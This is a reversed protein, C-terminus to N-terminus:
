RPPRSGGDLDYVVGTSFSSRESALWAVLEAVEDVRPAPVVANVLWGEPNPPM